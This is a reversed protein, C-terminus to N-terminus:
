KQVKPQQAAENRSQEQVGEVKEYLEILTRLSKAEQRSAFDCDLINLPFQDQCTEKTKRKFLQKKAEIIRIISTLLQVVVSGKSM